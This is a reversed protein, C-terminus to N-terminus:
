LKVLLSFLLRNERKRLDPTFGPVIQTPDGTNYYLNPAIQPTIGGPGTFYPVNAGRQTFEV